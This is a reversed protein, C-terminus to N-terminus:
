DIEILEKNQLIIDVPGADVIYIRSLNHDRKVFMVRKICNREVIFHFPRSIYEYNQEDCLYKRIDFLKTGESLVRPDGKFTLNEDFKFIYEAGKEIYKITGLTYELEPYPEPLLDLVMKKYEHDLIDLFYDYIGRFDEHSLKLEIEKMM